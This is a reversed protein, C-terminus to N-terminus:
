KTRWELSRQHPGLVRLEKDSVVRVHVGVVSAQGVSVVSAHADTLFIYQMPGLHQLPRYLKCWAVFLKQNKKRVKAPETGKESEQEKELCFRGM